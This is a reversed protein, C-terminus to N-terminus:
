PRKEWEPLQKCFDIFKPTWWQEYGAATPHVPDCMYRAYDEASVALMDPDNWLDLVFFGYEAKLQLLLDVMAAYAPNDFRTGTYFLLPCNWTKQVYEVIFRIATEVQPLPIGRGADNTSLQCICLDVPLAPDVRKLRAVYSQDDVDALTTGSVAEKVMHLGCQRAMHDAFSVGGAASGFTVSSGLFLVTKENLTM